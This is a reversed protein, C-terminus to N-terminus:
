DIGSVTAVTGARGLSRRARAVVNEASIGLEQMVTGGPASAGFRDIGVIEGAAGAVGEWGRTVGAEVVVRAAVAPPLVDDRWAPPQASFRTLSPMSVVRAALGDSALRERAALCTHVESGSGILLIHPTVTAGGSEAEALVYGGRVAQEAAALGSGESRDLVPLKQRTLVLATPGDRREVAMAWAIAAEAADAPRIVDLGPILRLSMLQEVPQHTPGDEGLGISDHTFVYVVPQGMLAALRIAPRMYDSFVLFTGGYPRIGGHLSLGNMLAAMAHERVGFHIYRADYRTRQITPDGQLATNNSETLDASGGVLEPIRRAIANLVVGSAARTAIRSGVEFDPLSERWGDPLERNIAREFQRALDPFESAYGAFRRRWEEGLGRGAKRADMHARVEAPVWFEGDVPLGLREKTLRLEVEGLPAGHVAATDQKNPAGYGIHTRMVILSPRDNVARAAELASDVSEVDLGDAHTVHWGYAEYRRAVDETFTLDTPGDISIRNDDYLVTLRRLGLHGALSAAESQVGEMLDGDSALVYTDHAVIEHGPRNYTSALWREALAMGVANGFGQGLPGTTTEVGPTLGHEPHGPTISGWQRFNQLEEIPVDYGTLHLLAYLLASGHGASLIFRDRDPWTPDTPDHRLYRKWVVYAAAAAGMPLGPHGSRAREVADMALGRIVNISLEEIAGRERTM